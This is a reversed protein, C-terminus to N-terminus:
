YFNVSGPICNIDFGDLLGTENASLRNILYVKELEKLPVHTCNM